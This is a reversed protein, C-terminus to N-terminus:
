VLSHITCGVVVMLMATELDVVEQGGGPGGYRLCVSNRGGAVLERSRGSTLLWLWSERRACILLLAQRIEPKRASGDVQEVLIHWGLKGIQYSMWTDRSVWIDTM